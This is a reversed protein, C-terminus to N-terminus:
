RERWTIGEAKAIGAQWEQEACLDALEFAFNRIKM